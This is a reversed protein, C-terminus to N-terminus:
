SRPAAGFVQEFRLQEPVRAAREGACEGLPGAQELLGILARQEEVLGHLQRPARLRFQQAHQLLALHAADALVHGRRTSARM